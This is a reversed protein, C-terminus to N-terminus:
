GRPGRVPEALAAESGPLMSRSGAARLVLLVVPRSAPIRSSGTIWSADRPAPRRGWSLQQDPRPHEGPLARRRLYRTAMRTAMGARRNPWPPQGDERLAGARRRGASAPPFVGRTRPEQRLLVSRLERRARAHGEAGAGFADTRCRGGEGRQAAPAAAHAEGGRRTSCAAATDAIRELLENAWAVVLEGTPRSTKICAPRAKRSWPSSTTPLADSSALEAAPQRESFALGDYSLTSSARRTWTSAWRRFLNVCKWTSCQRCRSYRVREGTYTVRQGSRRTSTRPSRCSTPTPQGNAM